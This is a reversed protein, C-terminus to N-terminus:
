TLSTLLSNIIWLMCNDVFLDAFGRNTPEIGVRAEMGCGRSMMQTGKDDCGLSVTGSHPRFSGHLARSCIPATQLLFLTGNHDRSIARTRRTRSCGADSRLPQRRTPVGPPRGVKPGTRLPPAKRLRTAAEAPACRHRTFDGCGLVIGTADCDQSPSGRTGLLRRIAAQSAARRVITGLACPPSLGAPDGTSRPSVPQRRRGDRM